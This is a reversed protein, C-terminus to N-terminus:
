TSLNKWLIGGDDDNDRNASFLALVGVGIFVGVIFAIVINLM